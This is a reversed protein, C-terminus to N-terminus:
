ELAGVILVLNFLCRNHHHKMFFFFPHYNEIVALFCDADKDGMKEKM